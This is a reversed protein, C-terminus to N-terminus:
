CRCADAAMLSIEVLRGIWIVNRGSEWCRAFCAVCRGCPGAGREIVAGHRREWEGPRVDIHRTALTVHIALKCARRFVTSRTVCGIEIVCRIRIVHCRREGGIAGDTVRGRSPRARHEIM